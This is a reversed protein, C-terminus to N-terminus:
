RIVNVHGDVPENSSGDTPNKYIVYYYTGAPVAKGDLKGDWENGKYPVSGDHTYIEDRGWRSFVHVTMKPYRGANVIIWEDHDGDDNPTFINPILFFDETPFIVNTDACHENEVVLYFRNNEIIDYDVYLLDENTLQYTLHRVSDTGTTLVRGDDGTSNQLWTYRIIENNPDTLQTTSGIGILNFTEGAKLDDFSLEGQIVATPQYSFNLVVVDSDGVIDVCRQSTEVVVGVSDGSSPNNLLYSNTDTIAVEEGNVYWFYSTLSTNLQDSGVATFIFDTNEADFCTDNASTFLDVDLLGSPEVDILETIVRRVPDACAYSSEMVYTVQDGDQVLQPGFVPPDPSVNEYLTDITTGSTHIVTWSRPGDNGDVISSTDVMVTALSDSCYLDQGILSFNPSIVPDVDITITDESFAPDVVCIASSTLVVTIVDGSDILNPTFDFCEDPGQVLSDGNVFWTFIPDDGANTTTACITITEDACQPNGDIDISVTASTDTNITPTVATDSTVPDGACTLSSIVTVWVVDTNLFNDYSYSAPSTVSTDIHVTDGNQQWIVIPDQGWNNGTATFSVSTGYCAFNTDAELTVTPNETTVNIPARNSTDIPSNAACPLDSTLIAYITDGDSFDASCYVPADDGVDAQVLNGNVYWDVLPNDGGFQTTATFCLTDNLCIDASTPDITIEAPQEDINLYIGGSTDTPNDAACPLDSIGVVYINDGLVLSDTAITSVDTLDTFVLTDNVFWLIQPNNGGDTFTATFTLTDNLCANITDVDPELTIVPDVTNIVVSVDDSAAVSDTVCEFNSIMKVSVVDTSRLTDLELEDQSTPGLVTDGNLCWIFQPDTGGFTYTATFTVTDNLCANDVDSSLDLTPTENPNIDQIVIFTDLTAETFCSDTSTIIVRITDENQLDNWTLQTTGASVTMSDQFAGNLFWQLHGNSHTATVTVSDGDCRNDSYDANLTIVTPELDDVNVNIVNSLATDIAACELDTGLFAQIYDGDSLNSFTVPNINNLATQPNGNLYWYIRTVNMDSPNFTATVTYDDGACITTFDPLISIDVPVTNNIDISIVNSVVQIFNVCEYSSLVELHIQDNQQLTSDCYEFGTGVPAGNLYWQFDNPNAYLFSSDAIDFCANQDSCIISDGTISLTPSENDILGSVITDLIFDRRNVCGTDADVTVTVEVVDGNNLDDRVLQNGTVGAVPNTNITWAFTPDEGSNITNVIFTWEDDECNGDRTVLWDGDPEVIPNITVQETDSIASCTVAGGDYTQSVEVFYWTDQGHSATFPANRTIATFNNGDTSWYWQVTSGPVVDELTFTSVDEPCVVNPDIVISADVSSSYVQFEEVSSPSSTYGPALSTVRIYLTGARDPTWTWNIDDGDTVNITETFIATGFNTESIEIFLQEAEHGSFVFQIDNEQCDNSTTVLPPEINACDFESTGDSTNTASASIDDYTYNLNAPINFSWEGGVVTASGLYTRADCGCDNSVNEAISKAFIEIRDGNAGYGAVTSGSSLSISVEPRPKDNNGRGNGGFATGLNIPLGDNCAIENQTIDNNYADSGGVYVGYGDGDASGQDSHLYIFNNSITNDRTVSRSGENDYDVIKVGGEVNSRVTTLDNLIGIYNDNVTINRATSGDTGPAILVGVRENSCVTNNEVVTGPSNCEIGAHRNGADANSTSLGVFNGIVTIGSNTGGREDGEEIFIGNRGNYAVYNPADVRGIEINTCGNVQIGSGWNKVSSSGDSSLGVYNNLIYGGNINDLYIGTGHDSRGATPNDSNTHAIDGNGSIINGDGPNPGGFYLDDANHCWVGLRYNGLSTVGDAAVGIYNGRLTINRPRQGSFTAIGIGSFENQSPGNGSIVSNEVIVDFADDTISMGNENNAVRNMGTSDTGIYCNSVLIDHSDHWIIVGNTQGGGNMTGNDNIVCNVVEVDDAGEDINIGNQRFGTIITKPANNSGIEVNSSGLVQIGNSGSGNGDVILGSMHTNNAFSIAGTMNLVIHVGVPITTGDITTGAGVTIAGANLNYTGAPVDGFELVQNPNQM